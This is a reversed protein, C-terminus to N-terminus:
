EGQLLILFIYARGFTNKQSKPAKLERQVELLKKYIGM